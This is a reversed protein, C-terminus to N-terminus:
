ESVISFIVQQPYIPSNSTAPANNRHSQAAFVHEKNIENGRECGTQTGGQTIAGSTAAAM